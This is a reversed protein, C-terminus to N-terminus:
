KRPNAKPYPRIDESSEVTNTPHGSSVPSVPREPNSHRPTSNSTSPEDRNVCNHGDELILRDTVRAPLFEHEPLINENLPQLGSAAFGNLINSPTFALPFAKGFLEAIDYITAPKGANDPRLMWDHMAENYFTKFGGFVTLDLQMRNSTQPHFTVFTVGNYKAVQITPVSIHSERNDLLLITKNDKSSKSFKIFHQMFEYFLEENSWGSPSAGSM